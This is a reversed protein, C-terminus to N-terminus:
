RSRSLCITHVFHAFGAPVRIDVGRLDTFSVPCLCVGGVSGRGSLAGVARLGIDGCDEAGGLRFPSLSVDVIRSVDIGLDGLSPCSRSGM